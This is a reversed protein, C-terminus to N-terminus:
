IRVEIWKPKAELPQRYRCGKKLSVTSLMKAIGNRFPPLSGSAMKRYQFLHHPLPDVRVEANRIPKAVTAHKTM